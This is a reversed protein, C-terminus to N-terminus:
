HVRRVEEKWYKDRVVRRLIKGVATVPLEPVITVSKPAKYRGKKGKCFAILEDESVSQGEKLIVEAHVAEGWEMHPIGVVASMLVAPHANLADEVEAAYVNFGGTIIMDKKRDVIYVFGKEDMYGMDGSKWFGDESFEEATSEPNNYYGKIVGFSRIWIEGTEGTPLRRGEEDMIYMEVEAVPAGASSLRAEDAETEIMHESKSLITVPALCETAGYAQIFINGFKAQLGKLKEPSMPSAGYLMTELSSLDFMKEVEVELFRYLITPVLMSSTIKEAQINKLYQTMDPINMTFHTGGKFFIPLVFLSSAHSLPTISLHRTAPSFINEPASYWYRMVALWNGLTFAACKGKGTTGGTLRYLLIDEDVDHEVGTEEDGVGELMDWLFDVGEMPHELPDMCVIRINRRILAAYYNDLMGNEIFIVKPQILDIEWLHEEFSDRCNCWLAAAEGKFLTWQHFISMNDNELLTLYVDGRGLGLKEKIMNAIRNSLRHLEMFTLRRNRETNVLAEKDRFQRCIQEIQRGFNIKRAMDSEKLTAAHVDTSRPRITVVTMEHSFKVRQRNSLERLAVFRLSM